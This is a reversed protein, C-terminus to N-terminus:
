RVMIVQETFYDKGGANFEMQLKWKGHVIRQDKLESIPTGSNFKYEFDSNNQDPKYFYIKGSNITKIEAPWYINIVNKISDFKMKPQEILANFNKIKDIRKQYEIEAKYYDSVVLETKNRSAIVAFSVMLTAFIVFVMFIAYGWYSKKNTM